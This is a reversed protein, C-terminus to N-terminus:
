AATAVEAPAPRLSRASVVVNAAVIIGIGLWENPALVQGLVLWGAAVAWVPNVSTMTGFLSAPIRRLALLDAVYPVVSGLVGCVVALLIAPPTPRFLSFWVVALPVWVAGSVVAVAATGQLGPLRQGLARNLHIYAGWGVAAILALSIGVLDSSPGPNTLVLVGVGALVACVLDVARRSGAIAVALPGLFELTVALGLGIRDVALYLSVNMVGLVIVMALVPLWQDRRLGRLRPRVGVGLVVATVLQRVVTVGIPGLVPFAAAGVAAGAQASASGALMLGIGRRRGGAGTPSVMVPRSPIAVGGVREMTAM